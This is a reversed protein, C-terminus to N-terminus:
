IGFTALALTIVFLVILPRWITKYQYNDDQIYKKFFYEVLIAGGIVNAISSYALFKTNTLISRDNPHVTLDKFFSSIIIGAVFQYIVAFLLVWTGERKYGVSRLNLMLLIGGILPSFFISFGLIVWKSYIAIRQENPQQDDTEQFEM